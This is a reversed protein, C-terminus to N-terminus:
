PAGHKAVTTTARIEHQEAGHTISLVMDWQGAHPLVLDHRYTGATVARMAFERDLRSDGAFYFKGAVKDALLPKGHKDSITLLITAPQNVVPLAQWGYRVQWGRKLQQERQQQYQNFQDEKERFDHSVTGPFVSQVAAGSRPEPLFWRGLVSDTGYNALVIFVTNILVVGSFFIILLVPGWHRAAKEGAAPQSPQALFVAIYVTLLYLALHMAFIDMGPWAIAALTGTVILIAIALLLGTAGPTLGAVRRLLVFAGVILVIGLPLSFLLNQM